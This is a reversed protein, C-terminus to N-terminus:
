AACSICHETAPRADLRGMPIAKGCASCEGYSGGDIRVLAADIEAVHRLTQDLMASAQAADMAIGSGEPDDVEDNTSGRRAEIGSAIDHRLSDALNRADQLDAVLRTRMRTLQAATLARSTPQPSILEATM